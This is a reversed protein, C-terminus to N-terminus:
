QLLLVPLFGALSPVMWALAGNESFLGAPLRFGFLPRTRAARYIFRFLLFNLFYRKMARDAPLDDAKTRNQVKNFVERIKREKLVAPKHCCKQKTWYQIKKMSCSSFEIWGNRLHMKYQQGTIKICKWNHKISKNQDNIQEKWTSRAIWSNRLHKKTNQGTSKISKWNRQIFKNQDNIQEKWTSRSEPRHNLNQRDLNMREQVFWTWIIMRILDAANISWSLQWNKSAGNCVVQTHTVIINFNIAQSGVSDARSVSPVSWINLSLYSKRWHRTKQKECMANGLTIKVQITIM